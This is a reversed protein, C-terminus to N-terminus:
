EGEDRVPRVEDLEAARADRTADLKSYPPIREHCSRAREDPPANKNNCYTKLRISTGTLGRYSSGALAVFAAGFSPESNVIRTRGASFASRRTESAVPFGREDKVRMAPAIM